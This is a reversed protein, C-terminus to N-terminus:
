LLLPWSSSGGVKTLEIFLHVKLEAQLLGCHGSFPKLNRQSQPETHRHAAMYTSPISGQDEILLLCEKGSLWRGPGETSEEASVTKM